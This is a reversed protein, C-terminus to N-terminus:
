FLTLFYSAYGIKFYKLM